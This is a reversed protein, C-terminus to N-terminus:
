VLGRKGRENACRMCCMTPRGDTGHTCPTRVTDLWPGVPKGSYSRRQQVNRGCYRCPGEACRGMDLYRWEGVHPRPKRHWWRRRVPCIAGTDTPEDPLDTM